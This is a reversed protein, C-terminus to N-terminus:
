LVLAGVRQQKKREDMLGLLLAVLLLAVM